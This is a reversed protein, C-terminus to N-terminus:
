MRSPTFAFVTATIQTLLSKPLPPRSLNVFSISERPMLDDGVDRGFGALGVERGVDHLDLGRIRVRHEDVGVLFLARAEQAFRLLCPTLTGSIPSVVSSLWFTISSAPSAAFPTRAM